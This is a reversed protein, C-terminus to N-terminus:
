RTQKRKGTTCSYMPLASDLSNQYRHGTHRLLISSMLSYKECITLPIPPNVDVAKILFLCDYITLKLLKKKEDQLLQWAEFPLLWLDLGCESLPM